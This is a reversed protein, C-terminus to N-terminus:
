TMHLWMDVSFTHTQIGSMALHGQYLMIHYLNYIVQPLYPTKKPYQGGCYLQLITSLSTLGWLKVRVFWGSTIVFWVSSLHDNPANLIIYLYWQDFPQIGVYIIFM